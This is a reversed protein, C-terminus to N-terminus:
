CSGGTFVDNSTALKFDGSFCRSDKGYHEERINKWSYYPSDYDSNNANVCVWRIYNAFTFCNDNFMDMSVLDNFYNFSSTSLVGNPNSGCYGPSM